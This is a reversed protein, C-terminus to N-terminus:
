SLALAARSRRLAWGILGFGLIMTMWTGPEPLAPPPTDGGGPPQDGGGPPNDGGGPPTDGGGPPVLVGGGPPPFIVGGGAPPVLVDGSPPLITALESPPSIDLPGLESIPAALVEALNKPVGKPATEREALVRKHKTKTLEGATRVGPSRADLLAM